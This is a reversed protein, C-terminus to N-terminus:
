WDSRKIEVEEHGSQGKYVAEVMFLREGELDGEPVLRSWCREEVVWRYGRNKLADKSDFPSQLARFLYERQYSREILEQLYPTILRFTTACDFLARHAFPNVFGHDAALYNLSLTNFNHRRWNIHRMSCAWHPRLDRLEPRRALFSRDFDCNHAVVIQARAFFGRVLEWDIKQGQLHANTLGTIRSVDPSLPVLPDELASYSRVVAPPDAAEVAFELLGIEIIRDGDPELGTTELDVILGFDM